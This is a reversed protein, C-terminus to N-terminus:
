EFLFHETKIRNRESFYTIYQESFDIRLELLKDYDYMLSALLETVERVAFDNCGSFTSYDFLFKREAYDNMLPNAKRQVMFRLGCYKAISFDLVDDFVYAVYDDKVYYKQCFIDFAKSKNKYGTFISNINEREAMFRVENNHQGSIIGVPLITNTRLWFAFRLLNIGISDIENFGQASAETKYGENFVGDWDFVLAKIKRVKDIFNKNQPHFFGGEKKFKEIVAVPTM